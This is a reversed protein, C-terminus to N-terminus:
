RSDALTLAHDEVADHLLGAAIVPTPLHMEALILAVNLCHQVYPEGSARKQGAHAKDAVAYAKELLTRDSPTSTPPLAQLLTELKVACFYLVRVNHEANVSQVPRPMWIAGLGSIMNDPLPQNIQCPERQSCPEGDAM